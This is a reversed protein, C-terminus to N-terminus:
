ARKTDDSQPAHNPERKNVSIARAFNDLVSHAREVLAEKRADSEKLDSARAENLAKLADGYHEHIAAVEERHQREADATEKRHTRESELSNKREQQFERWTWLLAVGAVGAGSLIGIEDIM